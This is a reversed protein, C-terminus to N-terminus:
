DKLPGRVNRLADVFGRMFMRVKPGINREYLVVSAFEVLLRRIDQLIWGPDSWWYQRWVLIRNRSMYYRRPPNYHTVLIRLPGLRRVQMRGLSHILRARMAELVQYGHRRLRLCYEHDVYDIFLSADFNGIRAAKAVDVLSGSTMASRVVRWGEGSGENSRDGVRIGSDRDIHLPAVVGVRELAPYSGLARIMEDLMAEPARSDQDFTALWAFGNRRAFDLGINLAAGIGENCGLRILTAGCRLAQEEVPALAQAASGNDVILVHGVQPALAALNAPVEPQPQYTVVVACIAAREIAPSM